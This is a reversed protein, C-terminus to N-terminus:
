EKTVLNLRRDIISKIDPPRWNPGKQTKGFENNPGDKTMNSDHVEMFIVDLIPGLGYSVATGITVYLLDAIGDAIEVVDNADMADLLEQLEEKMLRARLGRVGVSVHGTPMSNIHHRYKEHFDTLLAVYSVNMM